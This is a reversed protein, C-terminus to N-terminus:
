FKETYLWKKEKNSIINVIDQKIKHYREISRAKREALRKLRYLYALYTAIASDTTKDAPDTTTQESSETNSTTGSTISLDINIGCFAETDTITYKEGTYKVFLQSYFKNQEKIVQEREIQFGNKALWKRLEFWTWNPQLIFTQNQRFRSKAEALINSILIGGMGAIVIVEDGTFSINSLGDNIKLEILETYGATRINESAKALPKLNNDIALIKQTINRDILAIPLYAHDTGVDIVFSDPRIWRILAAIRKSLKNKTKGSNKM